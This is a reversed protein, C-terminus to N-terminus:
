TIVGIKTRNVTAKTGLAADKGRFGGLDDVGMYFFEGTAMNTETATFTITYTGSVGGNIDGLPVDIENSWYNLLNSPVGLDTGSNRQATIASFENGEFPSTSSSLDFFLVQDQCVENAGACGLTASLAFQGDGTVTKNYYIDSLTANNTGFSTDNALETDEGVETQETLLDSFEGIKKVKTPVMWTGKGTDPNYIDGPFMTNELYLDYYTTSGDLLINYPTNIRLTQNTSTCSGTALLCTDIPNANPDGPHQDTNYVKFTSSVSAWSNSGYEEAKVTMSDMFLKKLGGTDDDGNGTRRSDGTGGSTLANLGYIAVVAILLIVGIEKADM